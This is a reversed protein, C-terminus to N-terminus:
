GCWECGAAGIKKASKGNRVLQSSYAMLQSGYAM